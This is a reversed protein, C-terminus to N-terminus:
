NYNYWLARPFILPSLIYLTIPTHYHKYFIWERGWFYKPCVSALRVEQSNSLHIKKGSGPYRINELTGFSNWKQTRQTQYLSPMWDTTTQTKEELHHFSNAQPFNPEKTQLVLVSLTEGSPQFEILLYSSVGSKPKSNMGKWIKSPPPTPLM